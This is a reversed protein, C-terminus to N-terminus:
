SHGNTRPAIQHKLQDALAALEDRAQQRLDETSSIPQNLIEQYARIRGILEGEELAKERAQAQWEAVQKSQIVNWGELAKAWTEHRDAAEAFVLALGGYDARRRPDPEASARTLWEAMIGAEGGGRMLPILPLVVPSTTGALISDLTARADENALNRERVGLRTLLGAGPWAMDRSSNGTGTLNVVVAGVWFRDGPNDSPRLELWLGSLYGLLRGFMEADPETQFEVLVAWPEGGAEVNELFAVTDCTRDPEGPFNLRRADIWGRFRFQEPRLELLWALFAVPESKALYRCAQDFPNTSM